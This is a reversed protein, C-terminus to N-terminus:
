PMRSFQHSARGALGLAAAAHSSGPQALALALAQTAGLPGQALSVLPGPGVAARAHRCQPAAPGSVLGAPAELQTGRQHCALLCAKM